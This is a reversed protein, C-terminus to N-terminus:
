RDRHLWGLRDPPWLRVFARGVVDDDDIPGFVRSDESDGRNDGMVFLKGDPVTTTGCNETVTGPAPVTRPVAPRQAVGAWRCMRHPGRTPRDGTQHLGERTPPVLGIAEGLGRVFRTLPNGAPERAIQDRNIFVVM